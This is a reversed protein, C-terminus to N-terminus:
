IHILSLILGGGLNILLSNRDFHNATLQKWIFNCTNINKHEEGSKIEIIISNDLQPLKPLCNQKTNEDVLIAVKSYWSIDLKSLSNEGLWISYNDSKIEKM